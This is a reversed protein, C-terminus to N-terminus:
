IIWRGLAPTICIYYYHSSLASASSSDAADAEGGPKMRVYLMLWCLISNEKM